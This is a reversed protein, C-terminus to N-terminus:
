KIAIKIVHVSGTSNTNKLLVCIEGNYDADIVGGCVTIGSLAMSSRDKILGFYGECFKTSIGLPIKKIEGATVTTDVQAYLDFGASGPTM